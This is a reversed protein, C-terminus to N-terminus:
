EIERVTQELQLTLVAVVRRIGDQGPADFLVVEKGFHVALAGRYTAIPERQGCRFLGFTKV